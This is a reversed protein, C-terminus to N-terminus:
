QSILAKKRTHRSSADAQKMSLVLLIGTIISPFSFTGVMVVAVTEEPFRDNFAAEAILTILPMAFASGLLFWGALRSQWFAAVFVGIVAINGILVPLIELSQENLLGGIVIIFRFAISIGLLVLAIVWPIYIEPKSRGARFSMILLIIAAIVGVIVTILIENGM